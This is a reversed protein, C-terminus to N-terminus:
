LSVNQCKERMKLHYDLVLHQLDKPILSSWPSGKGLASTNWSHKSLASM